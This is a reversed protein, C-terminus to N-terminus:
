IKNSQLISEQSQVNHEKYEGDKKITAMLYALEEEEVVNDGTRMRARQRANIRLTKCREPILKLGIRDYNEALRHVNSKIHENTSSLM